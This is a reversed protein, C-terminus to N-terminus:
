QVPRNVLEANTSYYTTLLPLAWEPKVLGNASAQGAKFAVYSELADFLAKSEQTYDYDKTRDLTKKQEEQMYGLLDDPISPSYYDVLLCNRVVTLIKGGYHSRITRKREVMAGDEHFLKIKYRPAEHIRITDPVTDLSARVPKDVKEQVNWVGIHTNRAIELSGIEPYDNLMAIMKAQDSHGAVADGYEEVLSLPLNGQHNRAAQDALTALLANQALTRQVECPIVNVAEDITKLGTIYSSEGTVGPATTQDDDITGRTNWTDLALPHYDSIPRATSEQESM